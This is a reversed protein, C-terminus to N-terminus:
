PKLLGLYGTFNTLPYFSSFSKLIDANNLPVRYARFTYTTTRQHIRRISYEVRQCAQQSPYKRNEGSGTVSTRPLSKLKRCKKPANPFNRFVVM